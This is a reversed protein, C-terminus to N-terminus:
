DGRSETDRTIVGSKAYASRLGFVTGIVLVVTLCSVTPFAVRSSELGSELNMGFLGAVLSGAAACQATSVFGACDLGTLIEPM